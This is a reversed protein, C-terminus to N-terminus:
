ELLSLVISDLAEASILGLTLVIVSRSIANLELNINASGRSFITHTIERALKIKLFQLRV